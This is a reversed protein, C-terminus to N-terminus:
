AASDGALAARERADLKGLVEFCRGAEFQARAQWEPYAFGGYAVKFFHKVAEAHNKKNFYIEGIM